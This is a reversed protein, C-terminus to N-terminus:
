SLSLSRSKIKALFSLGVVIKLFLEIIFDPMKLDFAEGAAGALSIDEFDGEPILSVHSGTFVSSVGNLVM